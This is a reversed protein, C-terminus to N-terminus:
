QLSVVRWKSDTSDYWLMATRNPEVPWPGGKPIIIQNEPASASRTQDILWFTQHPNVNIIMLMRGDTGGSFGSICYPGDFSLRLVSVDGPNYDHQNSDLTALESGLLAFSGNIDLQTQPETTGIGIRGNSPLLNDAM